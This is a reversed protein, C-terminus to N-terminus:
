GELEIAIHEARKEARKPLLLNLIGERYHAKIEEKEVEHPLELTRRFPGQIRGQQITYPHEEEPCEGELTLNNGLISLRIKDKPVGPLLIRMYFLHDEEVVNIYPYRKRFQGFQSKIKSARDKIKEAQDRLQFGEKMLKQIEEKSSIRGLTNAIGEGIRELENELDHFPSWEKFRM